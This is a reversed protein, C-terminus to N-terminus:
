FSMANEPYIKSIRSIVQQFNVFMNEFNMKKHIFNPAFCEKVDYSSHFNKQDTILIAWISSYAFLIEVRIPM